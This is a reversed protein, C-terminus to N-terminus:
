LLWVLLIIFTIAIYLVYLQLRGHQLRQLPGVLRMCARVFPAFVRARFMDTAHTEYRGQRPFLGAPLTEDRTVGAAARLPEILPEAFSAGTYQMRAAPRAYGCDWTPGRGVRRRSLMARRLLWLLAIIGLLLGAACSVIALMSGLLPLAGKDGGVLGLSPALVRSLVLPSAMGILACLSALIIMPVRMAAGAEHAAAARATRPEGLFVIGFVKAFCACALGGILALSGLTALAPVAVGFPERSVAAFSGTYILFESIFGNLPPLACIAAAGVFFTAGTVRMRKLLGGLEDINRTGTAHAVAGAGLFLLSKFLAHNAVHLLAGAVGTAALLANGTGLGLLGLGLGLAIIGINEVSHYALLRKIDHQGLAFFVGFVGSVAGIAVLAWGWWLPPAATQTMLRVIGYIGTKIMVGSMVASVHSPAAPHAEPLWVHLPVFGAKTGFGVLALAFFLGAHAASAQARGDAGYWDFTGTDRAMMIFMACLFATGIHTAALYTWGAERVEAREHEFVVLFFSALAMVEWSILFLVSDRAIVVLMMSAVLMNYFFWAAGLHRKGGEARLYGAGYVAALGSVLLIVALFFGSLADLQVHFSGLPLHWPHQLSSVGAGCAACLAPIIGLLCGAVAGSAGIAHAARGRGAVVAAAGCAVLLAAAMLVHNVSM